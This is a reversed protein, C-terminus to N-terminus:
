LRNSRRIPEPQHADAMFLLGPMEKFKSCCEAALSGDCAAAESGHLSADPKDQSSDDM